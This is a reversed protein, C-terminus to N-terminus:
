HKCWSLNQKYAMTPARLVPDASIYLAIRAMLRLARWAEAM